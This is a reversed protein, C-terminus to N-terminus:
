INFNKDIRLDSEFHVISILKSFFVAEKLIKFEHIM